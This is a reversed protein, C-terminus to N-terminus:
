IKYHYKILLWDPAKHNAAFTLQDFKQMLSIWASILTISSRMGIFVKPKEHHWIQRWLHSQLNDMHCGGTYGTVVFNANQCIKTKLSNIHAIASDQYVAYCCCCYWKFSALKTKSSQLMIIKKSAHKPGPAQDIFHSHIGATLLVMTCAASELPRPLWSIEM